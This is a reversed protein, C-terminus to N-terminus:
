ALGHGTAILDPVADHCEASVRHAPEGRLETSQRDDAAGYDVRGIRGCREVDLQCPCGVRLRDDLASRRIRLWDCRHNEGSEFLLETEVKLPCGARDIQEDDILHEPRCWVSRTPKQRM